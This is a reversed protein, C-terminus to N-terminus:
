TKFAQLNGLTGNRLSKRKHKKGSAMIQHMKILTQQQQQMMYLLVKGYNVAEKGRKTDTKTRSVEYQIM